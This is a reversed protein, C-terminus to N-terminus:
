FTATLTTPYNWYRCVFASSPTASYGSISYAGSPPCDVTKPFWQHSAILTGDNWQELWLDIAGLGTGSNYACRAHWKYVVAVGSCDVASFEYIYHCGTGDEYDIALIFTGSHDTCDLSSECSDSFPGPKTMTGVDLQFSAPFCTCHEGPTCPCSACRVRKGSTGDRVVLGSSAERWVNDAM